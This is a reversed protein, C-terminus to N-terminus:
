QDYLKEFFTLQREWTPKNFILHTGGEIKFFTKPQNAASFLTQGFKIPITKDNTGHQMLVPIKVKRIEAMANFDDKILFRVPLWWYRDAAVDAISSYPAELSLAKAPRHAALMVAVGTGLSEGAILIKDPSIGKSNLWVYATESDIRFGVESPKGTSLGFGRYEPFMVGYGKSVYYAFRDSRNSINGGKGHFFLITPMNLAPQHFWAQLVEGDPTKLKIVEVDRLGQQQPSLNEGSSNYLLRDQAFYMAASVSLYAGFLILLIPLSFKKILAL